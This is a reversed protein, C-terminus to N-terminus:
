RDSVDGAGAAVDSDPPVLVTAVAMSLAMILVALALRRWGHAPPRATTDGAGAEAM